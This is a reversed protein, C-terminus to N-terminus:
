DLSAALQTISLLWDPIREHSMTIQHIGSSELLTKRKDNEDSSFRFGWYLHSNQTVHEMNAHTVLGRFNQCDGSLGIFICLNSRLIHSARQKWLTDVNVEADYDSTLFITRRSEIIKEKPLCGHLHIIEIDAYSSRTPMKATTKVVFGHYRLYSELLDDYNFTLIETVGGRIGAMSLAGIARMMPFNALYSISNDGDQYLAAKLADEFRARDKQFFKSYINFANTENGHDPEVVAGCNEAIRRVLESWGPLGFSQSVGAGLVLRLYGNKLARALELQINKETYSEPMLFNNM